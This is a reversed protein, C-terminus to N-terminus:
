GLLCVYRLINANASTLQKLEGGGSAENLGGDPVVIALDTTGVAKPNSSLM